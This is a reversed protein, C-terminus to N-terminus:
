NSNVIAGAGSINVDITPEDRYHISGARSISGSILDSASVQINGSGLLAIRVSNAAFDFASINGAGLLEIFLENGSGSVDFAAAGTNRLTLSEQDTFDDITISGAGKNEVSVLESIVISVQLTMNEYNGNELGITLLGDASVQTIVRGILNDDSTVELAQNTGQTVTLETAPTSIIANFDAVRRSETVLVGSGRFRDGNGLNPDEDLCSTLFILPLLASFFHTM